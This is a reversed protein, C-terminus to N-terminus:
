PRMGLRYPVKRDELAAVAAPYGCMGHVSPGPPTASSYLWTGPLPTRYPNWRAVPRALTQWLSMAGSGIDGGVYNTNYEGLQAASLGREAVVSDTFGPAHAEIAARIMPLHNGTDGNPVHAYAWVPRKWRSLSPTEPRDTSPWGDSVPPSPSGRSPSPPWGGLKRVISTIHARVTREAVGLRRALLRNSEGKALNRLVERERGTLRALSAAGVSVPFARIKAGTTM